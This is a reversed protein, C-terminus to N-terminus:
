ETRMEKKETKLKDDKMGCDRGSYKKKAEELRKEIKRM